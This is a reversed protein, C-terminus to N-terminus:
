EEAVVGDLDNGFQLCMAVTEMLPGQRLRGKIRGGGGVASVVAGDEDKNEQGQRAEAAGVENAANKAAAKAEAQAMALALRLANKVSRGNLTHKGLESPDVDGTGGADPCLDDACGALTILNKWIESRGEEELATYKLAATIRTQFAPDFATVRNTTLFLVGRFYEIMRLM